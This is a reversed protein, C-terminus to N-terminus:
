LPSVFMLPKAWTTSLFHNAPSSNVSSRQISDKILTEGISDHCVIQNIIDHTLLMSISVLIASFPAM